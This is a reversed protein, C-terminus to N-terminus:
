LELMEENCGDSDYADVGNYPDATGIVIRDAEDGFVEPIM